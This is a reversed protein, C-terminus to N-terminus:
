VDIEVPVGFVPAKGQLEGAKTYHWDGVIGTGKVRMTGGGLMVITVTNDAHIINIQGALTAEKPLLAKFKAWENPTDEGITITQKVSVNNANFEANIVVSNVIGYDTGSSMNIRMLNGIEALPYVGGLPMTLNRLSPQPHHKALTREGLLRAADAHTILSSNITNALKDAASLYRKVHAFIGGTEGGHVYVANAQQTNTARRSLSLIAAEPVTINPSTTAFDWPLVPYRRQATIAKAAKAPTIILGVQQAADHIAQVPTQNQYSWAGAPLLWDPAANAWDLSFGDGLPLLDSMAQQITQDTSNAIASTPLQYPSSLLASLGRGRVTISRKGFERNESWDEVLLHWTHANISVALVAPAGSAEPQVVDLAESGLLTASWNWAWSDADLSISVNSAKININDPIRKVEINHIMIYARRIPIVYQSVPTIHWCGFPLTTNFKERMENFALRTRQPDLCASIPPPVSPKPPRPWLTIVRAANQWPIVGEVRLIKGQQYFLVAEVFHRSAHDYAMTREDRQRPPYAFKSLVGRGVAAATNWLLASSARQQSLKDWLFTYHAHHIEARRWVLVSTSALCDLRLWAITNAQKIPITNHWIVNNKQKIKTLPLSPAVLAKSTPIATQYPEVFQNTIGRWVNINYTIAAQLTVVPLAISANCIADVPVPTSGFELDANNGSRSQGFALNISAM